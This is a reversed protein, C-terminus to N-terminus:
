GKSGAAATRYVELAKRHLDYCRSVSYRMKDALQDWKLADIYRLQLLERLVPDAVGALCKKITDCGIQLPLIMKKLRDSRASLLYYLDEGQQCRELKGAVEALENELLIKKRLLEPYCVIDYQEKQM